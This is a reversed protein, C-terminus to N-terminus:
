LKYAIDSEWGNYTNILILLERIAVILKHGVPGDKHNTEMPHRTYIRTDMHMHM